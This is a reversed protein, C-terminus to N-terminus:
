NIIEYSFCGPHTSFVGAVSITFSTGAIRATVYPQQATTNCTVGLKAGLSSDFTPTIISNATVATTDVVVSSGSVAVAVSGSSAPGCAAPSASSSCNTLTAYHDQTFLQGRLGCINGVACNTDYSVLNNAIEYAEDNSVNGNPIHFLIPAYAQVTLTSSMYATLRIESPSTPAATIQCIQYVWQWAENNYFAPLLRNCTATDGSGLIQIASTAQYDGFQSGTTSREWFAGIFYDGVAVSVNADYFTLQQLGAGTTQAQAAGSTGDPAAIGATVSSGTGYTLWNSPSTFALNTYRVASPSFQRQTNGAFGIVKGNYFGTQGQVLPDTLSSTLIDQINAAGKVGGPFYGYLAVSSGVGIPGDVRVDYVTGSQDATFINDLAIWSGVVASTIWVTGIGPSGGSISESYTDRVVMNVGNTGEYYKIEGQEVVTNTIIAGASALSSSKPKILIAAQNDSGVTANPNGQAVIHDMFIDQTDGGGINWGPGASSSCSNCDGTVMNKFSAGYVGSSVTQNGNSDVGLQVDITPYQIQFNEFSISQGVSSLWIGPATSSGGSISVVPKSGQQNSINGCAGLFHVPKAKRWGVPPSSYNPDAAGMIWIGQGTTSTANIFSGGQACISITGGASPLADYAAMITLKASGMSLGDNTDIGASDVFQISDTAPPKVAFQGFVPCASTLLALFLILKNV